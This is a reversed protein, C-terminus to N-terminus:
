VRRQGKFHDMNRDLGFLKTLPDRIEASFLSRTLFGLYVTRPLVIEETNTLVGDTIQQVVYDPDLIPLLFNYSVVGDFMGTNIYYPCVVTTHVGTKGEKKM